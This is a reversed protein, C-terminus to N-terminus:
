RQYSVDGQIVFAFRFQMGVDRHALGVPRRVTAM